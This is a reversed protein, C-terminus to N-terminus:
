AAPIADTWSSTLSLMAFYLSITGAIFIGRILLKRLLNKVEKKESMSELSVALMEFAVGHEDSYVQPDMSEGSFFASAHSFNRRAMARSDNSDPSLPFDACYIFTSILLLALLSLESIRKASVTM